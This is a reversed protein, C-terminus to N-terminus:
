IGQKAVDLLKRHKTVRKEFIEKDRVNYDSQPLLQKPAYLNGSNKDTLGKWRIERVPLNMQIITGRWRGEARKNEPVHVVAANLGKKRKRKEDPENNPNIENEKLFLSIAWLM